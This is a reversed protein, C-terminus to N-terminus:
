RHNIGGGAPYYDRGKWRVAHRSFLFRCGFYLSYLVFFIQHLLFWKLIHAVGILRYNASIVLFNSFIFLGLALTSRFEFGYLPWSIVTFLSLIIVTFTLILLPLTAPAAKFGGILWRMRQHILDGIGAAPETKVLSDKDRNFVTKFPTKAAIARLLGVDETVTYGIGDYGGIQEYAERSFAINNGICSQPRGLGALGSAIGILFLHDLSQLASFAGRSETISFGAALGVGGTFHSVMSRVWGAPARCDADTSLIIEGTSHEIGTKLANEKGTLNGPSETISILRLNDHGELFGSVIDATNDESRDDVIIIDLRDQPYDQSLLSELCEGIHAQENRAAVVISVVPMATTKSTRGLNGMLVLIAIMLYAAAAILFFGSLFYLM